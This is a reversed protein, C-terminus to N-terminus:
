KGTFLNPTLGLKCACQCREESYVKQKPLSQVNCYKDAHDDLWELSVHSLTEM